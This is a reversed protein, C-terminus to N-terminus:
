EGITETAAAAPTRRTSRRFRTAAATVAAIAQDTTIVAAPEPPPPEPADVPMADFIEGSGDRLRRQLYTCNMAWDGGPPFMVGREVLPDRPVSLGPAPRFWIRKAM